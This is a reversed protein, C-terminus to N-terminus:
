DHIVGLAWFPDRLAQPSLQAQVTAILLQKLLRMVVNLKKMLAEHLM